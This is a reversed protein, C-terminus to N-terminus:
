FRMYRDKHWVTLWWFSSSYSFTSSKYKTHMIRAVLKKISGKGKVEEHYFPNLKGSHPVVTKM